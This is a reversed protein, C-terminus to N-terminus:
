KSSELTCCSVLWSKGGSQLPKVQQLLSTTTTRLQFVSYYITTGGAGGGVVIYLPQQLPARVCFLVQTEGIKAKVLLTIAQFDKNSSVKPFAVSCTGRRSSAISTLLAAALNRM